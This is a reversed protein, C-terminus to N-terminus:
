EVDVAELGVEGCHRADDVHVIEMDPGQGGLHVDGARVEHDCDPGIRVPHEVPRSVHEALAVGDRVGGELDLRVVVGAAGLHLPSARSRPGSQSRSNTTRVGSVRVEGAVPWRIGDRHHGHHEVAARRTSAPTQVHAPTALIPSGSAPTRATRAYSIRGSVTTFGKAQPSGNTSSASATSRSRPRAVRGAAHTEAPNSSTNTAPVAAAQARPRWISHPQKPPPPC